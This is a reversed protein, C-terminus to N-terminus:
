NLPLPVYRENTSEETKKKHKIQELKENQRELEAQERHRKESEAWERISQERQHQM